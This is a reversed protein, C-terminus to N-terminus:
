ASETENFLGMQEPSVKESSVGYGRRRHPVLHEYVEDLEKKFRATEHRHKQSQDLFAKIM